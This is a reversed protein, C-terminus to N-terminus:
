NSIHPETTHSLVSISFFNIWIQFLAIIKRQINVSSFTRPKLLHILCIILIIQADTSTHLASYCLSTQFSNTILM